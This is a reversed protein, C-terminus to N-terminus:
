RSTGARGSTALLYRPRDFVDKEIRASWGFRVALDVALDARRADVEIALLGGLTLHEMAGELIRHIHWMGNERSVLADRPEYQRVGADLEEYEVETVYPPNAVIADLTTESLPEFFKGLRLDVTTGPMVAALNQAAVALATSSADTAIVRTFPGEVALSLAVCGSGTGIDAVIGHRAHTSAWDLVSQVLGETEPRPILVSRDVALDLTRFGATGTAYALPEGSSRREVAGQFPEWGRTAIPERSASLAETPDAKTVASWIALAEARADPMGGSRLREVAWGLAEELTAPHPDNRTASKM